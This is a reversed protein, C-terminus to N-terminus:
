ALKAMMSVLKDHSERMGGLTEELMTWREPDTMAWRKREAQWERRDYM